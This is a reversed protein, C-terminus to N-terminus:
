SLILKIYKLSTDKFIGSDLLVLEFDHQVFFDGLSEDLDEHVEESSGTSLVLKVEIDEHVMLPLLEVFADQQPNQRTKVQYNTLSVYKTMRM